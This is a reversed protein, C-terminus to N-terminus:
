LNNSIYTVPIITLRIYIWWPTLRALHVIQVRNGQPSIINSQSYCLKKDQNIGYIDRKVIQVKLNLASKNYYNFVMRSECLYHIMLKNTCVAM